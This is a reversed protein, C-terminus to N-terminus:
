ATQRHIGEIMEVDVVMREVGDQEKREDEEDEGESVQRPAVSVQRDIEGAHDHAVAAEAIAAFDVGEHVPKRPEALDAHEETQAQQDIGM